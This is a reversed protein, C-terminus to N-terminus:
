GDFCAYDQAQQYCWGYDGWVAYCRALHQVQCETLDMAARTQTLGSQKLAPTPAATALGAPVFMVSAAFAAAVILKKLM